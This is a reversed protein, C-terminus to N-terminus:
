EQTSKFTQKWFDILEKIVEDITRRKGNLKQLAGRVTLLSRYADFSIWIQMMREKKSLKFAKDHTL